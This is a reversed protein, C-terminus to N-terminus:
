ELSITYNYHPQGGNIVEVEAEYKDRIEQAINEAESVKVGAGYYITVIEAEEINAKQLAESIVDLMKNSSAVLDESDLIAIFQGKKVKLGNFETKRVAKTIEITKVATTAEEMIRANEELNMDYNFALFAAIGQPITRTPIVRVKKSALSEVQSATLIINKNNPLLIVDNSTASEVAQLLQRVSPNMTQGGPVIITTGLSNFVKFFGEGSAIAVIAIDVSPMREKQMKM